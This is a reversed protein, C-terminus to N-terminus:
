EPRIDLLLDQAHVVRCRQGPSLPVPAVNRANWTTGRMEARGHGGVPIATAPVALEGVLSDVEAGGRSRLMGVLPQRFLRLTVLAVAPFLLWQLWPAAVLNTLALAGVVLAGIAFFILFLGPTALEIGALVLGFAIWLWWTM